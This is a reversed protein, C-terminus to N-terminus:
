TFFDSSTTTRPRQNFDSQMMSSEKLRFEDLNEKNRLEAADLETFYDCSNTELNEKTKRDRIEFDSEKQYICMLSACQYSLFM